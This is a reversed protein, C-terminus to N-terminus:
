CDERRPWGGATEPSFEDRIGELWSEMRIPSDCHSLHLRIMSIELDRSFASVIQECLDVTVDEPRLQPWNVFAEMRRKLNKCFNQKLPDGRKTSKESVSGDRSKEKVARYLADLATWDRFWAEEKFYVEEGLCLGSNWLPRLRLDVGIVAFVFRGHWEQGAPALHRRATLPLLRHELFRNFADGVARTVLFVIRSAQSFLGASLRSWDAWLDRPLRDRSPPGLLAVQPYHEAMVIMLQRAFHDAQALAEQLWSAPDPRDAGLLYAAPTLLIAHHYSGRTMDVGVEPAPSSDAELDVRRSSDFRDPASSGIEQWGRGWKRHSTQQLQRVSSVTEVQGSWSCICVRLRKLSDIMTRADTPALTHQRTNVRHCVQTHVRVYMGDIERGGGGGLRTSM